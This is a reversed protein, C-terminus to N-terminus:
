FGKINVELNFECNKSDHKLAKNILIVLILAISVILIGIIM